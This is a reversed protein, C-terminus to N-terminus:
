NTSCVSSIKSMSPFWMLKFTQWRKQGSYSLQNLVTKSFQAAFELKISDCNWTVRGHSGLAWCLEEIAGEEGASAALPLTALGTMGTAGFIAVNKISDSMIQLLRHARCLSTTNDISTYRCCLSSQSLYLVNSVHLFAEELHCSTFREHLLSRGACLTLPAAARKKM